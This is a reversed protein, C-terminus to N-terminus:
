LIFFLFSTAGHQKAFFYFPGAQVACVTRWQLVLGNQAALSPEPNMIRGAPFETIIGALPNRRSGLSHIKRLIIIPIIGQLMKPCGSRSGM